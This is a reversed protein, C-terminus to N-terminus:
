EYLGGQFYFLHLCLVDRLDKLNFQYGVTSMTGQKAIAEMIDSQYVMYIKEHHETSRLTATNTSLIVAKGDKVRTRALCSM